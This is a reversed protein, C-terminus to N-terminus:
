FQKFGIIERVEKITRTASERAKEAGMKAVKRLYDTDALISEIRTYFPETFAVIDEALQKKMDGYRIECSNYKEIFYQLTDPSSVVSMLTFLNQIPEPKPQNPVTPGSDTVAKMVKKRITKPDDSLYIANGESKGMKGSGDLGPIKVLQEGFNYAIPEPFYEVKYLRNFRNAFTRTMELHQEQDKGVPVKHAKHIIIDAAMLTPYTLLGANVNNAQNRIKDKFSTCRELEGLYANMNLLLYLEPIEPIDSQVYLTAVEPDLGCALYEALVQKVSGHLNEPTPHTTLSHYDAIFFYCKNEHQMKVFNKLAGFYNGLHLKGTSRIGSVVIDM